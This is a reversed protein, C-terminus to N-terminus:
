VFVNLEYCYGEIITVNQKSKQKKKKQSQRIGAICLDNKLLEEINASVIQSNSIQTRSPHDDYRM